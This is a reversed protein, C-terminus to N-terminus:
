KVDGTNTLKVEKKHDLVSARETARELNNFGGEVLNKGLYIAITTGTVKTVKGTTVVDSKQRIHFGNVRGIVKGLNIKKNAM